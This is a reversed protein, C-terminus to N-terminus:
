IGATQEWCDLRKQSTFNKIISEHNYKRFHPSLSCKQQQQNTKM